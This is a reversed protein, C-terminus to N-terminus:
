RRQGARTSRCLRMGHTVRAASQGTSATRACRVVHIRAHRIKRKHKKPKAKAKPKPKVTVTAPSSSSTQPGHYTSLGTTDASGVHRGFDTTYTAGPMAGGVPTGAAVGLGIDSYDASLINERHGASNMWATMISSPTALTGQGWAINEGANWSGEGPLYGVQTLRNVVTTGEPSTHDFFGETVMLKSFATSSSDLQANETLAPLGAAARQENLLCLTAQDIQAENGAAPMTDANPCTAAHAATVPALLATGALVLSALTRARSM